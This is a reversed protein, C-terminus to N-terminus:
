PRSRLRMRRTSHMRSAARAHTDSAPHTRGTHQQTHTHTHTCGRLASDSVCAPTVLCVVGAVFVGCLWTGSGSPLRRGLDSRDCVPVCCVTRRVEALNASLNACTSARRFGPPSSGSGGTEGRHHESGRRSHESGRRSHESARRSCPRGASPQSALSGSSLSARAAGWLEAGRSSSGSRRLNRLRSTITSDDETPRRRPVNVHAHEPQCGSSATTRPCSRVDDSACTL